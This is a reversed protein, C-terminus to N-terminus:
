QYMIAQPSQYFCMYGDCILRKAHVPLSKNDSSKSISKAGEESLWHLM